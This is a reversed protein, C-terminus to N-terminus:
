KRPGARKKAPASRKGSAPRTMKAELAAIREQLIENEERAKAAMAKVTEFEDRSVLDLDGLKREIRARVAAEIEGRLGHLAGVASSALRSFDDILKNDTQM